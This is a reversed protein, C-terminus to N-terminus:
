PSVAAGVMTESFPFPEDPVNAPGDEEMRRAIEAFVAWDATNPVWTWVNKGAMIEDLDKTPTEPVSEDSRAKEDRKAADSSVDRQTGISVELPPALQVDRFIADLEQPSIEGQVEIGFLTRMVTSKLWIIPRLIVMAHDNPVGSDLSVSRLQPIQHAAAVFRLVAALAHPNEGPWRIPYAVFRYDPGGGFESHFLQTARTVVRNQTEACVRDIARLIRETTSRVLMGQGTGPEASIMAAELNIRRWLMFLDENSTHDRAGTRVQLYDGGPLPERTAGAFAEYQKVREM